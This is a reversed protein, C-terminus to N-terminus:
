LRDAWCHSNFLQQAKKNAAKLNDALVVGVQRAEDNIRQKVAYRRSLQLTPIDFSM